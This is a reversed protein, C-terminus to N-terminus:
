RRSNEFGNAKMRSFVLKWPSFRQNERKQCNGNLTKVNEIRDM